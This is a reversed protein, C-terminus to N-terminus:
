SYNQGPQERIRLVTNSLCRGATPPATATKWILCLSMKQGPSCTIVGFFLFLLLSCLLLVQWAFFFPWVRERKKDTLRVTQGLTWDKRLVAEKMKGWKKGRLSGSCSLSGWGWVVWVFEFAVLMNGCSSTPMKPLGAPKISLTKSLRFSQPFPTPHITGTSSMCCPATNCSVASWQWFYALSSTSYLTQIDSLHSLFQM